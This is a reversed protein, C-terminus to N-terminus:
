HKYLMAHTLTDSSPRLKGEINQGDFDVIMMKDPTLENYPVGSPKIAFAGMSRDAASVNGFTFLVLQLAPLEMNADYAEQKIHDYKM